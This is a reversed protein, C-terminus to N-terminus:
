DTVALRRIIEGQDNRLSVVYVGAQLSGTEVEVANEGEYLTVERNQLLRGGMDHISLQMGVKRDSIVMLTAVAGAYVPNPMLDVSVSAELENTASLDRTTFIGGQMSDNPNCLDFDSYARVRWHLVKNKPLNGTHHLFTDQVSKYLLRPLFNDYLGVEVTYFTAGPVAKWRFQTDNYDTLFSDIPAYLTTVGADDIPSPAESVQLYESHETYLNERMAEMQEASFRTICQDLAYSMIMTADSRFEAGNPDKQVVNSEGDSNCQWRYNLYDPKTDCFGDGANNCNSGDTKEVARGNIYNPAAESFDLDEGEWGSFTHPLSLHHGAEHAWTSNGAGSCNKGLVIADQWAYGCNGAPDAVVFVNLRGPLRNNQIMDSGGEWDHDYWTTNNVIRVPDTPHLYFQIRAPAFQNNMNCLARIVNDFNYHGGGADNGISHITCPVYLWTTDPGKEAGHLKNKQYDALWPSKGTTGCWNTGNQQSYGQTCLALGLATCATAFFKMKESFKFM